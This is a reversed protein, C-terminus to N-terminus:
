VRRLTSSIKCSARAFPKSSFKEISRSIYKFCSTVQKLVSGLILVVPFDKEQYLNENFRLSVLIIYLFCIAFLKELLENDFRIEVLIRAHVSLIFSVLLGMNLIM